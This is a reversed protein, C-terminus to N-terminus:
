NKRYDDSSWSSKQDSSNNGEQKVRRKHMQQWMSIRKGLVKRPNKNVKTTFDCM